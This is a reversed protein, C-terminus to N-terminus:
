GCAGRLGWCWPGQVSFDAVVDCMQVGHCQLSRRQGQRLNSISICPIGGMYFSLYLRLSRRNTGERSVKGM